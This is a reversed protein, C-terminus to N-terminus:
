GPIESVAPRGHGEHTLVDGNWAMLSQPAAMVGVRVQCAEDLVEELPCAERGGGTAETQIEWADDLDIGRCPICPGGGRIGRM